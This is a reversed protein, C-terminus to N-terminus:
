SNKENEVAKETIEHYLGIVRVFLDKLQADAKDLYYENERADKFVEDLFDLEHASLKKGEHVNTKIELLRPLRQEDFRKLIARIVAQDKQNKEM